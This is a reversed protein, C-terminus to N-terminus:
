TEFEALMDNVARGIEAMAEDDVDAELRQTLDGDAVDSLVQTYAEAATTLQENRNEIETQKVELNEIRTRLNEEMTALADGFEGPVAQDLVPADFEERSLADAQAAVTELYGHMEAFSRSLEGIEDNQDTEPVGADLDGAAIHEAAEQMRKIPAVFDRQLILLTNLLAAAALLFVVGFAAMEAPTFMRVFGDVGLLAVGLVFITVIAGFQLLTATLMKREVSRTVGLRDMVGWLLREYWQLLRTQDTTSM